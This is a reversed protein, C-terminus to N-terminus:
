GEKAGDESHRALEARLADILIDAGARTLMKPPVGALERLRGSQGTWDTQSDIRKLTRVLTEIEKFQKQSPEAGAVPSSPKPKPPPEDRDRDVPIEEAATGEYGGM